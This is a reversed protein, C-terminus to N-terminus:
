SRISNTAATIINTSVHGRVMDRGQKMLDYSDFGINEVDTEIKDNVKQDGFHNGAKLQL